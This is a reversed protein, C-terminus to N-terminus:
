AAGAEEHDPREWTGSDQIRLLRWARGVLHHLACEINVVSPTDNGVEFSSGPYAIIWALVAAATLDAHVDEVVRGREDGPMGASIVAGIRSAAQNALDAVDGLWGANDNGVSLDSLVSPYEAALGLAFIPRTLSQLEFLLAEDSIEHPALRGYISM